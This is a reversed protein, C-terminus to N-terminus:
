LTFSDSKPLVLINDRYVSLGKYKAITQRIERKQVGFVDHVEAISQTDLDWTRIEFSFSGGQYPINDEEM